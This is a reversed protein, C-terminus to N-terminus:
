AALAGADIWRVVLDLVRAQPNGGAFGAVLEIMSTGRAAARLAAAEDPDVVRDCVFDDNRWVLVTRPWDLARPHDGRGGRELAHWLEDATTTLEVLAHAPVLHLERELTLERRALPRTAPAHLVDGHARDLAALEGYWVPYEPARALHDALWAGTARVSRPGEPQEVVYRALMADFVDGGLVAALRPFRARVASALWARAADTEDQPPMSGRALRPEPKRQRSRQGM